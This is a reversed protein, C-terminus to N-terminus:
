HQAPAGGDRLQLKLNTFELQLWEYAGLVAIRTYSIANGLIWRRGHLVSRSTLRIVSM